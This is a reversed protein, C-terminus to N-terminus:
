IVPVVLKATDIVKDVLALFSTVTRIFDAIDDIRRIARRIEATADRVKGMANSIGKTQEAFLCNGVVTIRHNIEALEIQIARAEAFTEAEGLRDVLSSAHAALTAQLEALDPNIDM